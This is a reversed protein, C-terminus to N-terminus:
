KIMLFLACSLIMGFVLLVAIGIGIGGVLLAHAKVFDKMKEYCDDMFVYREELKDRQCAKRQQVDLPNKCCSEPVQPGSLRFNFNRLWIKYAKQDRNNRNGINPIVGCCNFNRQVADWSETVKSDNGYLRITMVMESHMREDVESRFIYGLIGGALMTLFIMALIFFFTILMCRIERWAGISGLFSIIAVVLGTGILISASAVYSRTGLLREMFSKDSLTWVGISFVTIGGIFIVGNAILMAFKVGKAFGDVM